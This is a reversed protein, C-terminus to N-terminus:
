RQSAATGFSNVPACQALLQLLIEHDTPLARPLPAKLPLPTEDMRYITGTASLGYPATTFRVTPVFHDPAAPYDLVITPIACLHRRAAASLAPYTEAGVLLCADPEGRELLENASYEGPGYRPYGRALDVSFPFGTQWCLVSDAGSVDGQIRLRRAYFRTVANLETVLRLLLEVNAHGIISSPRSGDFSMGTLGLGFFVVGSRCSKMCGMLRALDDPDAGCSARDAACSPLKGQLMLRLATIAEFDGDPEIGIVFDPLAGAADLRWDHVERADGVLVVTRDRRGGPVFEGVPFVSYREAHRPHSESPNCGWFIVLDSRNRVEGLSCTSEGVTQVALISPGHCLSATTDVVAGLSEALAVAARQGPTSSRSLGYILPYKAARLISAAHEFASPLTVERGSIEAPVRQQRANALFWQEALFCPPGISVLQEGDVTLQLDDCVCACAPCAVDPVIEM